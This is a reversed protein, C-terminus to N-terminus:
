GDQRVFVVPKASAAIDTFHALRVLAATCGIGPPPTNIVRYTVVVQTADEQAGVIGMSACGNSGTVAVGVVMRHAFDVAPVAPHAQGPAPLYLPVANWADSWAQETRFSYTGDAWNLATVGALAPLRDAWPDTTGGGGCAALAALLGTSAWRAM